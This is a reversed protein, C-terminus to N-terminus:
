LKFFTLVDKNIEGCRVMDNADVYSKPKMHRKPRREYQERMVRETIKIDM